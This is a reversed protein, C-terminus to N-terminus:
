PTLHSYRKAQDIPHLDSFGHPISIPGSMSVTALPQALAEQTERKSLREYTTPVKLWFRYYLNAVLRPGVIELLKFFLYCYFVYLFM